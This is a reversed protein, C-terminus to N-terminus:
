NDIIMKKTITEKDTIIQVFYVGNGSIKFNSETQNIAFKKEIVQGLSNSIQILKTDNPFYVTFNFNAPNPFISVDSKLLKEKIGTTFGLKVIWFDSYAGATSHNGTVNGDTSTSLGAIIFGGDHTQQISYANDDDSGGLSTQWQINGITDLKVIWYDTWGINSLVDGDSSNSFGSVIYGRDSTQQISYSFDDLSGGLSKQWQINGVTDLKVVWYDNYGTTGHHGTVDSDNSCTIGGVIYGRDNTQMISYALDNVSGGLCKQWQINGSTDLKVVWYDNGGHNGIVGSTGTTDYYYMAEGAVIFGGDNTQQISYAEENSISGLCKQWQLNGATDLKVIWYDNSGHNVTVNGDNSQTYGAVIYGGDFTQEVSQAYDDGTGGLSRQWQIFGATDLKVVWYDIGGHNGTVNGGTSYSYGAVIYGSDSTQQICTAFDDSGGGYSKEWQLVGNSDIKVVWYDALNLHGGIDGDNSYSYGAVIFGGDNTQKVSAPTDYNSGGLCRQWQISPPTTQASLCLVFFFSSLLFFLHKM